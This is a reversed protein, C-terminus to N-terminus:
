PPVWNSYTQLYTSDRSVVKVLYNNTWTGAQIILSSIPSPAMGVGLSVSIGIYYSLSVGVSFTFGSSTGTIDIPREYNQPIILYDSWSPLSGGWGVKDRNIDSIEAGDRNTDVAYIKEILVLNQQPPFYRIFYYKLNIKQNYLYRGTVPVSLGFAYDLTVITARSSWSTYSCTSILFFREKGEVRINSGKVYTFKTGINDWTAFQLVTTFAMKEEQYPYTPIQCASTVTTQPSTGVPTKSGDTKPIQSEIRSLTITKQLYDLPHKMSAPDVSFTLTEIEVVERGSEKYAKHAIIWLNVAAYSERTGIRINGAEDEKPVSVHILKRPLSLRAKYNGFGDSFGKSLERPGGDALEFITVYTNGAPAGRHDRILLTSDLYQVDPLTAVHTIWNLMSGLLGISLLFFVIGALIIKFGHPVTSALHRDKLNLCRAEMM